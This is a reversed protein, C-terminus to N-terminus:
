TFNNRSKLKKVTFYIDYVFKKNKNELKIKSCKEILRENLIKSIVLSVDLKQPTKTETTEM